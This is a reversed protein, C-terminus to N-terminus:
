YQFGQCKMDRDTGKYGEVWVWTNKVDITDKGNEANETEQKLKSEMDVETKLGFAKNITDKAAQIFENNNFDM